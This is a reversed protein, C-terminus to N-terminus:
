EQEFDVNHWDGIRAAKIEAEKEDNKVNDIFVEGSVLVIKKYNWDVQIPKLYFIHNDNLNNTKISLDGSIFYKSSFVYEGHNIFIEIISKDLFIEMFHINEIKIKWKKGFKKNLVINNKSKDVVLTNKHYSIKMKQKSDNQLVVEFDGKINRFVLNSLRSELKAENELKAYKNRLNYINPHIKQTIEGNQYNLIRPLSLNNIWNPDLFHSENDVSQGIKGMMIKEDLNSFLQPAYFDFGLDAKQVKEIEFSLNKWDMNGILFYSNNLTQYKKWRSKVEQTSFLFVDKEGIRFFDPSEYMLAEWLLLPDSLKIEGEYVFDKDPFDSSYLVLAAQSNYKQAGHLLYFKGNIFLPKPDSFKETYRNRDVAFLVKKSEEIVNNESDLEVVITYSNNEDADHKNDKDVKGTYYLYFKGDHEISGGSYIGDIDEKIAPKLVLDNNFYKVFDETYFHGKHMLSNESISYPNWQHFIHFKDKHVGLGNPNSIIGAFGSLHLNNYYQDQLMEKHKLLIEDYDNKPDYIREYNKKNKTAKKHKEKKSTNDNLTKM